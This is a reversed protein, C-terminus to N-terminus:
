LVLPKSDIPGVLTTTRDIANVRLLIGRYGVTIPRAFTRRLGVSDPGISVFRVHGGSTSAAINQSLLQNLRNLDLGALTGGHLGDVFQKDRNIRFVIDLNRVMYVETVLKMYYNVSRKYGASTDKVERGFADGQFIGQFTNSTALGAFVQSDKLQEDFKKHIIDVPLGYSEAMSASISIAQPAMRSDEWFFSMVEPPIFNLIEKNSLNKGVKASAFAPFNVLRAVRRDNPTAFDDGLYSRDNYGGSKNYSTTEEFLFRSKYFTNIEKELDLHAYWLDL